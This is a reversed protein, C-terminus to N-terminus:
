DIDHRSLIAAPTKRLINAVPILGIIINFLYLLGITLLIVGSNLVFTDKLFSISQCISIFYAIVGIGTVGAISTIAIIESLFMKYIDTKKVGIARLIGVEKIRSLFSSRIMFLIEVLSIALIIVAVMVKRTISQKQSDVYKERSLEYSDRADIKDKRFTDLAKEKDKAYVTFEQSSSILNYKTTNENVLYHNYSDRSSYYGVVKLKRGNVSVDIEKDLKMTEQNDVNVIVEYDNDPMRGKTLVIKDKILLYNIIDSKNEESGRDSYTYIQNGSSDYELQNALLNTFVSRDMYISPSVLDTIGVIKFNNMNPVTLEIGIMKEVSDIGLLQAIKNKFMETIAMKDVVVEYENEPMRGYILDSKDIMDISALSGLLNDVSNIAQYYSQYVVGFGINSNSPLIYDIYDLNDYANYNDISMNIVSLSLYNKNKTIFNEDKINIAGFITSISYLLFMGAIFFGILLLKKLVNYNFVKKFGNFLLTFPNYISSYRLKQNKDVIKDLEFSYEEYITKDIKKYHDDVLEINSNDDIIEIKENNKSKIYINGNKFIIDINLKEKDNSYLNINSNKDNLQKKEKFDKLYIKNEMRYDLDEDHENVYDKIISGDEIEIVRDAYFKALDVEHTVLIVLRTKSIAKIINMIELSNKSDLNGTPEDALIIDPNKVIARAIGVRQREGGSLMNAMRNRYRYMGIVELVYDIRKKIEKKNKIGMMKLTLAINDYVSMNDILKYDQFIYGVSLNRIKDMKSFNYKTIKKDNIYLKGKHFKDLGGIINLLTTKGSGSNGLLAVLGNNEFSLSTNNIVHIQNKKRRNFYKNVNELKIM